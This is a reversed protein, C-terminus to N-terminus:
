GATRVPSLDFHLNADGHGVRDWTIQNGDVSADDPIQGPVFGEPVELTVVLTAPRVMVQAHHAFETVLKGDHTWWADDIVYTFELTAQEGSPIITWASAVPGGLETEVTVEQGEGATASLFECHTGCYLSVMLQNDGAELGETNPGVVRGVGATPAGNDLTVTTTVTAGGDDLLAVDHSLHEELWYDVKSGTGSNYTVAAFTGREPDPLGGTIGIREFAAQEEPRAAHLMLHRGTVADGLVAMVRRLPADTQGALFADLSAAAVDGIAEKRQRPDALDDFSENTVYDVVTAPRLVVGTEPVEIPGTLRMLAELAFPDVLITGDIEEDATAAWLREIATAVMPFDPSMNINSWLGTANYQDYRAAFSEDPPEVEGRDRNPLDWTAGFSSVDVDGGDFTAVAYAGIFGGTARLEAPNAVALFYRRPEEAGLFLPLQATLAAASSVRPQLDQLLTTFRERADAVEPLLFSTATAALADSTSSLEADLDSLPPGLARLPEVPLAGGSPALADMGGPLGELTAVVDLASRTVQRASTAVTAAVDLSNGVWPLAAAARVPIRDLRDDAAVAAEAAKRLRDGAGAVDAESLRQQAAQLHSEAARLDSRAATAALTILVIWALLFLTVAGATLWVTRPRLTAM